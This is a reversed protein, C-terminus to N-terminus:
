SGVAVQQQRPPQSKCERMRQTARARSRHDRRPAGPAVGGIHSREDRLRRQRCVRDPRTPESRVAAVGAGAIGAVRHGPRGDIRDCRADACPSRYVDGFGVPPRGPGHPHRNGPTRQAVSQAATAGVGALAVLLALLGVSAAASIMTRGDELETAVGEALPRATVVLRHDVRAVAVKAARTVAAAPGATRILISGGTGPRFMFPDAQQRLSMYPTDRVIGVVVHPQRNFEGSSVRAGLPDASPWLRSALAQNIVIEASQEITSGAGACSSAHRGGRSLERVGGGPVRACGARRADGVATTDHRDPKRQVAASADGRDVDRWATGRGRAQHRPFRRGAARRRIRAPECRGRAGAAPGGAHAPRPQACSGSGALAAGHRAAARAIGRSRDCGPDNARPRRTRRGRPDLRSPAGDEVGAAGADIGHRDGRRGRSIGRFHDIRGDPAFSWSTPQTGGFALAAQLVWSAALCGLLTGATALLLGEALFQRVVRARGAGLSLRVAIERRRGAARALLLGAVNACAILLVFLSAIGLCRHCHGARRRAGAHRPRDRAVALASPRPTARSARRRPGDGGGCDACAGTRSVRWRACARDGAAGVLDNARQAARRWARAAAHVLAARVSGACLSKRQRDAGGSFGPPLVGVITFAKFNLELTQDLVGPDRNFRRAWYADSLVVTATGLPPLDDAPGFTRGLAAATQLVSFYNGSALVARIRTPQEDGRRRAGVNVTAYAALDSFAPTRDRYDVYDPYTPGVLPRGDDLWVLAHSAPLDPTRLLLNNLMLFLAANVGAGLAITLMVVASLGPSRTMLRAGFTVDQLFAAAAPSGWQDRARERIATVNGFQRRAAREAEERPLGDAMLARQRLELHLAIEEQLEDDLRNRRFFSLLRRLAHLM